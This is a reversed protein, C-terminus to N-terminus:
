PVTFLRALTGLARTGNGEEGTGAHSRFIIFGDAFPIFYDLEEKGMFGILSIILCFGHSPHTKKRTVM